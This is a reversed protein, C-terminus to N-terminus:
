GLMKRGEIVATFIEYLIQADMSPGICLPCQFM